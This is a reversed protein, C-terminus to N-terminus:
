IAASLYCRRLLVQGYDLHSSATHKLFFIIPYMLSGMFIDPFLFIVGFASAVIVGCNSAFLRWM